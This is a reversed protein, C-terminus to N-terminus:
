SIASGTSGDTVAGRLAAIITGVSAAAAPTRGGKSGSAAYRLRRAPRVMRVRADGAPHLREAPQSTPVIAAQAAAAISGLPREEEAGGLLRGPM